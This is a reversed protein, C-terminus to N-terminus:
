SRVQRVLARGKGKESSLVQRVLTQSTRKELSQVKRVLTLGSGKESSLVRVIFWPKARDKRRVGFRFESSLTFCLGPGFQFMLIKSLTVRYSQLIYWTCALKIELQPYLQPYM